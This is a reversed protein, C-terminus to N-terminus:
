TASGNWPVVMLHGKRLHPSASNASPHNKITIASIATMENFKYNTSLLSICNAFIMRTIIRTTQISGMNLKQPNKLILNLFNIEEPLETMATFSFPRYTQSDLKQSNNQQKKEKLLSSFSSINKGKFHKQDTEQQKNLFKERKM